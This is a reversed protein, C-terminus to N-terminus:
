LFECIIMTDYIMIPQSELSQAEINALHPPHVPWNTSLEAFSQCYLTTAIVCLNGQLGDQELYKELKATITVFFHACLCVDHTPYLYVLTALEGVCPHIKFTREPESLPTLSM